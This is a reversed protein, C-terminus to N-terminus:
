QKTAIARKPHVLSSFHQLQLWFFEIVYPFLLLYSVVPSTQDHEEQLEELLTVRVGVPHHFFARWKRSIITSVEIMKRNDLDTIDSNKANWSGWESGRWTIWWYTANNKGDRPITSSLSLSFVTQTTSAKFCKPMKTWLKIVRVVECKLKWCGQIWNKGVKTYGWFVTDLQGNKFHAREDRRAMNFLQSHSRASIFSGM